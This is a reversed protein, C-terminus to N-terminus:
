TLQWLQNACEAQQHRYAVIQEELAAEHELADIAAQQKAFDTVMVPLRRLEKLQILSITASSVVSTLFEQGMPSRLQVFLARPDIGANGRKRLVIASQGAIWPLGGKQTGEVSVIGVKGVSGKVLLVIDFPQLFQDVGRAKPDLTVRRGPTTIYGFEPLDPAGIELAELAFDETLGDNNTRERDRYILPPRVLSVLDELPVTEAQALLARAKAVDQPLVYRSVQLQAENDLVVKNQVVATDADATQGSCMRLLDEINTLKTRNRSTSSSNSTKFRPSDANVFRVDQNGGQPDIVLISLSIQSGQLLGAPLAVVSRLQGRRLLDERLSYEAGGSFLLNNPTVAVIRNKTAALLQRLGLVASSSTREPFRDPEAMDLQRMDIRIGLPLFAAASGYKQDLPLLSGMHDLIPNGQKTSWAKGSQLMGILTAIAPSSPTEIFIQAGWASLAAGIQGNSDWPVYVREGPKTTLLRGVLTALAPDFTFGVDLIAPLAILDAPQPWNESAGFFQRTLEVARVVTVPSLQSLSGQRMFLEGLSSHEDAIAELQRGLEQPSLGLSAGAPAEHRKGWVMLLLILPAVESSSMGTDLLVDRLRFLIQENM